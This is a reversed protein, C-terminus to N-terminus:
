EELDCRLGILVESTPGLCRYNTFSLTCIFNFGKTSIRRGWLTGQQEIFHCHGWLSVKNPNSYLTFQEKGVLLKPCLVKDRKYKTNYTTNDDRKDQEMIRLYSPMYRRRQQIQYNRKSKTGETTKIKGYSSIMWLSHTSYPISDEPRNKGKSISPGLLKVM